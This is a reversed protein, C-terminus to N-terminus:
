DPIAQAALNNINRAKEVYSFYLLFDSHLPKQDRPEQKEEGEIGDERLLGARCTGSFLGGRMRRRLSRSAGAAVVGVGRTLPHMAGHARRGCRGARRRLATVSGVAEALAAPSRARMMAADRTPQNVSERIDSVHIRLSAKHLFWLSCEPAPLEYFLAQTLAQFISVFTRVTPQLCFVPFFCLVPYFCFIV